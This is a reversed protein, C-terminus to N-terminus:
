PAAGGGGSGQNGLNTFSSAPLPRVRDTRLREVAAAATQGDTGSGGTGSRIENPQAVMLLLNHDNAGSPRWAGDRNQQDLIETCGGLLALSLLLAATKAKCM